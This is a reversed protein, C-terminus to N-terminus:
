NGQICKTYQFFPVNKLGEPAGSSGMNKELLINRYIIISVDKICRNHLRCVRSINLHSGQEPLATIMIM